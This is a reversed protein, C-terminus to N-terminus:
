LFVTLFFLSQIQKSLLIHLCFGCLASKLVVKYFLNVLFKEITQIKVMQPGHNAFFIKLMCVCFQSLCKVTENQNFYMIIVPAYTDFKHFKFYKKNFLASM